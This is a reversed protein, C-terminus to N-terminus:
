SLSLFEPFLLSQIFYLIHLSFTALPVFGLYLVLPSSLLSARLACVYFQLDLCTYSYPILDLSLFFFLFFFFFFLLFLLVCSKQLLLFESFFVSLVERGRTNSVRYEYLQSIPSVSSFALFTPPIPSPTPPPPSPPLHPPPPRSIVFGRVCQM